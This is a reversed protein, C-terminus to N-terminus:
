RLIAQGREDMAWAVARDDGLVQELADARDAPDFLAGMLRAPAGPTLTALAPDLGMAKLGRTTAMALLLPAPAADRQFLLRMQPLIGLPQPEGPPQCLISDTGLCVNVGAALLRRYPHAPRGARPHGFYASARPCYVVSARHRALLAIHHDEIYNCHALLWPAEALAPELWDIPHCHPIEITGDWRDLRKLLDVMPGEGRTTFAIEEPTEAVHSCLAFRGRRALKGAARYVALGASYPAHPSLGAVLHGEGPPAIAASLEGAAQELAEARPRALAGIGMCELYHVGGLTSVLRAGLGEPRPCVDGLWGVGSRQSLEIGHKMAAEIATPERPSQEIVMALWDTFSGDFPRPGLDSLVLHAHANVLAPMLLIGPLECPEADPFRRQLKVPPGTAAICGRDIAVAGPRLDCRATDRVADAILLRDPESHPRM